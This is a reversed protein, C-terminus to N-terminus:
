GPQSDKASGASARSHVLAIKGHPHNFDNVRLEALLARANRVDHTTEGGEITALIPELMARAAYIAATCGAPGSGIIILKAHTTKPM